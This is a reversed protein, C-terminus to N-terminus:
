LLAWAVHARIRLVLKYAVHINLPYEKASLVEAPVRLKLRM